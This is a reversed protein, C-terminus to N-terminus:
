LVQNIFSRDPCGSNDDMSADFCRRKKYFAWFLTTLVTKALELFSM